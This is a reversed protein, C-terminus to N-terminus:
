QVPVSKPSTQGTIHSLLGTLCGTIYLLDNEPPTYLYVVEGNVKIQHSPYCTHNFNVYATASNKNKIDIVTRM